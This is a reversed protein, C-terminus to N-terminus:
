LMTQWPVQFLENEQDSQVVALMLQLGFHWAKLAASTALWGLEKEEGNTQGEGALCLPASSRLCGFASEIRLRGLM